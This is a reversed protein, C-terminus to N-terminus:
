YSRRIIARGTRHPGKNKPFLPQDASPDAVLKEGVEVWSHGEYEKEVEAINGSHYTSDLGLENYLLHLTAARERCTGAKTNEWNENWVNSLRIKNIKGQSKRREKDLEIPDLDREEAIDYVHPIKNDIFDVAAEELTGDHEYDLFEEYLEEPREDIKLDYHGELTDGIKLEVGRIFTESRIVM